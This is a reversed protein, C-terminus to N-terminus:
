QFGLEKAFSLDKEYAQTEVVFPGAVHLYPYTSAGMILGMKNRILVGSYAIKSHLNITSNFNLKVTGQPLPRWLVTKPVWDAQKDM